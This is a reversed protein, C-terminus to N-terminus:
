KVFRKSNYIFVLIALKERQGEVLKGLGFVNTKNIINFNNLVDLGMTLSNPVQMTLSNSVKMTLSNPVQMTLSNSVKLNNTVM